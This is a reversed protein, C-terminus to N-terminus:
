SGVGEMFHNYVSSSTRSYNSLSGNGFLDVNLLDATVAWKLYWDDWYLLDINLKSDINNKQLFQLKEILNSVSKKHCNSYIQFITSFIRLFRSWFFSRYSSHFRLSLEKWFDAMELRPPLPTSHRSVPEMSSAWTSDRWSRSIIQRLYPVKTPAPSGSNPGAVVEAPTM